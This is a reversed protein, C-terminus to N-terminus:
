AWLRKLGNSANTQRVCPLATRVGPSSKFLGKSTADELLLEGGVKGELSHLIPKTECNKHSQTKGTSPGGLALMYINVREEYDEFIEVVTNGM